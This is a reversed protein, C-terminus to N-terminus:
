RLDCGEGKRGVGKSLKKNERKKEPIKRHKDWVGVVLMRDAWKGTKENRGGEEM